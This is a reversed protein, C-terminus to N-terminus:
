NSRSTTTTQNGETTKRRLRMLDAVSVIGNQPTIKSAHVHLSLCVDAHSEPTGSVLGFNNLQHFVM